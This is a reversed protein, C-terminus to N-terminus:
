ADLHKRITAVREETTGKVTVVRAGFYKLLERVRQDILKQYEVDAPRVDDVYMQFEIPVYAYFDIQRVEVFVQEEALAVFESRVDAPRSTSIYTYLDFVSRDSVTIDGSTRRHHRLYELIYNVIGFESVKDNMPIGKAILLRAMEPIFGVRVDPPFSKILEAALTSKGVGHTGTIVVTKM